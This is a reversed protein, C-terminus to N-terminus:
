IENSNDLGHLHLELILRSSKTEVSPLVGIIGSGASDLESTHTWIEKKEEIQALGYSNKRSITDGGLDSDM